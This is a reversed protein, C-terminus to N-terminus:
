TVFTWVLYAFAAIVIVEIAVVGFVFAAKLILALLRDERRYSDPHISWRSRARSTPPAELSVM